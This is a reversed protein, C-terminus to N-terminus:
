SNKIGYLYATSYQAWLGYASPVQLSISTIASTTNWLDALLGSLASAANNESVSDASSSKANAGAYNPIYIVTSSFTNATSLSSSNQGFESSSANGSSSASSGDGYLGIYSWTSSSGNFTPRVPAWTQGANSTTRGSFFIQLDTYTSPISTFDISAAGGAGVVTSSILEFTNAM